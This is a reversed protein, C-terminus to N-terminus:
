SLCFCVFRPLVGLAQRLEARDGCKQAVELGAELAGVM